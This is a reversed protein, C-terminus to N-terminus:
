AAMNFISSGPIGERWARNTTIKRVMDESLDYKKAVAARPMHLRDARIARAREMSNKTNPASRRAMTLALVGAASRKTRGQKRLWARHKRVSGDMLHGLQCCRSNGCSPWVRWRAFEPRERLTEVMDASLGRELLKLARQVTVQYKGFWVIGYGCSNTCGNWILCDGEEECRDLISCLSTYKM